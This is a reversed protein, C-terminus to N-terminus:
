PMEYFWGQHNEEGNVWEKRSLASFSNGWSWEAKIGRPSDVYMITDETKKKTYVVKFFENSTTSYDHIYYKDTELDDFMVRKGHDKVWEGCENKVAAVQEQDSEYKWSKGYGRLSLHWGGSDDIEEDDDSPKRDTFRVWFFDHGCHTDVICNYEKGDLIFVIKTGIAPKTYGENKLLGDFLSLQGECKYSKM